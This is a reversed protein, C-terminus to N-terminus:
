GLPDVPSKDYGPLGLTPEVSSLPQVTVYGFDGHADAPYLVCDEAVPIMSLDQTNNLDWFDLRNGDLHIWISGPFHPRRVLFLSDEGWCYHLDEVTGSGIRQALHEDFMQQIQSRTPPLRSQVSSRFVGSGQVFLVFTSCPGSCDFLPLADEFWQRFYNGFRIRQDRAPLGAWDVTVPGDCPCQLALIGPLREHLCLLSRTILHQRCARIQLVFGNAFFHLTGDWVVGNVSVIVIDDLPLFIRSKVSKWTAYAPVHIPYPHPWSDGADIWITAKEPEHTAYGSLLFVAWRGNLLRYTRDSLIWTAKPPSVRKRYYHFTISALLEDCSQRAGVHLVLPPSLGSTAYCTIAGVEGHNALTTTSTTAGCAPAGVEGHNALTTTSTTAGCAPAATTTTSTTCALPMCPRSLCLGVPIDTRVRQDRVIQSRGGRGDTVTLIVTGSVFRVQGTPLLGDVRTCGPPKSVQRDGLAISSLSDSHALPPLVCLWFEPPTLPYLRRADVLGLPAVLPDSDSMAIAFWPDGAIVPVICPWKLAVIAQGTVQQICDIIREETFIKPVFLRFAHHSLSLVIIEFQESCGIEVEFGLPVPDESDQSCFATSALIGVPLSIEASASCFPEFTVATTTATTTPRALQLPRDIYLGPFSELIDATPILTDDRAAPEENRAGLPLARIVPFSFRQLTLSNVHRRNIRLFSAPYAEPFAQRVFGFLEGLTLCAPLNLTKFPAGEPCLPRGDVLYLTRDQALAHDFEVLFHLACDTGRPLGGPLHLQMHQHPALHALADAVEQHLAEVSWTKRMHMQMPAGGPWHLMIPAEDVDQFLAHSLDRAEQLAETWRPNTFPQRSFLTQPTVELPWIALTDARGDISEFPPIRRGAARVVCDSRAVQQHLGSMLCHGGVQYAVSFPTALTPADVVCIGRGTARADVPLAVARPAISAPTAAIQPLPLGEVIDRIVHLHVNAGLHEFHQSAAHLCDALSWTLQKAALRTQLVSDFLTFARLLEGPAIKEIAQDDRVFDPLSPNTVVVRDVHPGPGSTSSAANPDTVDVDAHPEALEGTGCQVCTTTTSTSTPMVMGFPRATSAAFGPRHSLVQQTDLVAPYVHSDLGRSTSSGILTVTCASSTASAGTGILTGDLYMAVVPNLHGSICALAEMISQQTIIGSVPVTIFPAIPPVLVRRLDLIAFASFPSPDGALVIHPPTGHMLPSTPPIHFRADTDCGLADAAIAAATSPCHWHAIHLLHHAAEPLHVSIASIAEADTVDETTICPLIHPIPMAWRRALAGIMRTPPPGAVIRLIDCTRAALAENPQCPKGDATIHARRQQLRQSLAQGAAAEALQVPTHAPSTRVTYVTHEEDDLVLQVVREDFGITGWICVQIPPLGAIPRQLIRHGCRPGLAPFLQFALAVLDAMSSGPPIFSLFPSHAEVFITFLGERQAAPSLTRVFSDLSSPIDSSSASTGQSHAAKPRLAPKVINGQVQASDAARCVGADLPYVPEGNILVQSDLESVSEVFYEPLGCYRCALATLQLGSYTGPVEVTCVAGVGEGFAVPVIVSTPLRDGWIVIQHRPFGPLLHTLVRFHAVERAIQPTNELAVAVRHATTHWHQSPLVRAHFYVDFVAFSDESPDEAMQVDELVAIRETGNNLSIPSPPPDKLARRNWKGQTAPISATAFVAEQRPLALHQMQLPQIHIVDAYTPLAQYCDHQLGNVQCEFAPWTHLFTAWPHYPDITVQQLFTKPSMTVPVDCVLFGAPALDCVFVVSRHSYRRGYRSVLILPSQFDGVSFRLVRGVPEPLPSRLVADGMCRQAKWDPHKVQRVAQQVSDFCTYCSNRLGLLDSDVAPPMDPRLAATNHARGRRVSHRPKRNTYCVASFSLTSACPVDHVGFQICSPADFLRHGSSTPAALPSGNMLPRWVAQEIRGKDTTDGAFLHCHPLGEEPFGTNCPPSWEGSGPSSSCFSITSSRPICGDLSSHCQTCPDCSVAPRPTLSLQSESPFWFSIEFAFQVKLQLPRRPRTCLCSKRPSVSRYVTRDTCITDGESLNHLDSMCPSGQATAALSASRSACQNDMRTGQHAATATLLEAHARCTFDEYQLRLRPDPWTTALGHGRSSLAMELELQLGLFQSFALDVHDAEQAVSHTWQMVRYPRAPRSKRKLSLGPGKSFRGSRRHRSCRSTANPFFRTGKGAEKAAAEAKAKANALATALEAQGKQLVSASQVAEKDVKMLVPEEDDSADSYSVQVEGSLNALINKADKLQAKWHAENVNFEQLAKGQEAQQKALLKQLNVTYDTWAALYSRRAEQVKLLEKQAKEQSSVAKHLDKSKQRTEAAEQDGIMNIVDPPLVERSSRLTALLSDLRVQADSPPASLTQVTQGPQPLQPPPPPVPLTPIEGHGKGTDPKGKSTADKGHKGAGKSQGRDRGRSHKRKPPPRPRQDQQQKGYADWATQTSQWPPVNATPVYPKGFEWGCTTCFLAGKRSWQSCWDCWPSEKAKNSMSDVATQLPRGRPLLEAVKASLQSKSHHTSLSAIAKRIRALNGSHVTVWGALVARLLTRAKTRM